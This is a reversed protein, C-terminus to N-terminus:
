NYKNLTICPRIITTNNHSCCIDVSLVPMMMMLNIGLDGAVMCPGGLSFVVAGM